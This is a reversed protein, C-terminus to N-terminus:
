CAAFPLAYAPIRVYTLGVSNLLLVRSYILLIKIVGKFIPVLYKTEKLALKLILLRPCDFQAEFLIPTEKEFVDKVTLLGLIGL